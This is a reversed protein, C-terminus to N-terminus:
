RGKKPSRFSRRRDKGQHLDVLESSGAHLRSYGLGALPKRLSTNGALHKLLVQAQRYCGTVYAWNVSPEKVVPRTVAPTVGRRLIQGTVAEQPQLLAFM